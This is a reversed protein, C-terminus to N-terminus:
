DVGNFKQLYQSKWQDTFLDNHQKTFGKKTVKSVHPKKNNKVLNKKTYKVWMQCTKTIILFVNKNELKSM